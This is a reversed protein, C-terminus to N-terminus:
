SCGYPKRTEDTWTEGTHEETPTQKTTSQFETKIPERETIQSWWSHTVWDLPNGRWEEIAVRVPFSPGRVKSFTLPNCLTPCLQIVSSFQASFPNRPSTFNSVSLWGKKLIMWNVTMTQQGTLFCQVSNSHRNTVGTDLHMNTLKQPREVEGNISCTM